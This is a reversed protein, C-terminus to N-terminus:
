QQMEESAAEMPEVKPAVGGDQEEAPQASEAAAPEPAAPADPEPAFEKGLRNFWWKTKSQLTSEFTSLMSLTIPHNATHSLHYALGASQKFRKPCRGVPCGLERGSPKVEQKFKKTAREEGTETDRELSVFFHGNASANQFHFRLGALSKFTKGCPDLACRFPMEMLVADDGAEELQRQREKHLATHHERLEKITRWSRDIGTGPGGVGDLACYNCGYPRVSPDDEVAPIETQRRPRPPAFGEGLLASNAPSGAASGPLVAPPVGAILQSDPSGAADETGGVGPSVGVGLGVGGGVLPAFGADMASSPRKRPRSGSGSGSAGSGSAASDVSNDRAGEGGLGGSTPQRPAAFGTPTTVAPVSPKRTRARGRSGGNSGGGSGAAKGKGKKRAGFDEDASDDSEYPLEPPEETKYMSAAHLQQAPQPQGPQGLQHPQQHLHAQEQPYPSPIAPSGNPHTVFSRPALGTYAALSPPLSTHPFPSYTSAPSGNTGLQPSGSSTSAARLSTIYPDNPTYEAISVSGAAAPPAFSFAHPPQTGTTAPSAKDSVTTGPTQLAGNAGEDGLEDVEGEADPSSTATGNPQVGGGGVVAAGQEVGGGYAGINLSMPPAQGYPQPQLTMPLGYQAAVAALSGPVAGAQSSVANFFSQAHAQQQQQLLQAYLGATDAPSLGNPQAGGAAGTAASAGNLMDRLAREDQADASDSAANNDVGSASAGLAAVAANATNASPPQLWTPADLAWVSGPQAAPAGPATSTGLQQQVPPASSSPVSPDQPSHSALLPYAAPPASYAWSSPDFNFPEYSSM